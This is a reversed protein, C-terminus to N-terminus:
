LIIESELFLSCQFRLCLTVSVEDNFVIHRILAVILNLDIKEDSDLMELAEVTSSSYRYFM